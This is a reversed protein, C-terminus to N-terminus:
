GSWALRRPQMLSEMREGRPVLPSLVSSLPFRYFRGEEGWGEAGDSPPSPSIWSGSAARRRIVAADASSTSVFVTPFQLTALRSEPPPQRGRTRVSKV